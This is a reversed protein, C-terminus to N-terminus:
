AIFGYERGGARRNLPHRVIPTVYGGPVATATRVTVHTGEVKIRRAVSEVFEACPFIKASAIAQTFKVQM